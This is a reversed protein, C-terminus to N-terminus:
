EGFVLTASFGRGGEVPSRLQLTAGSQQAIRDVIALGLGTGETLVQGREFPRVLKELAEAPVGAGSDVVRVQRPAVEITVLSNAGSHKLANDILNRLAIGIADLDGAVPAAQGQAAIRLRGSALPESFEDAVLRTLSLLDIPERKLAVGSEVRALQLLRTALRALRDLQRMLAQARTRTDEDIATATLRQAQARAAALPTRLEHATQAAFTREAEVLSRMREILENITAIWPQLECPLNNTSISHLDQAARAALENRTPELARFARRVLLHLVSASMPLLAGLPVILWGLSRWLVQQRHEVREAVQVQRSRDGRTLTMVRWGGVDRVGDLGRLDLPQNPAAHSRMRLRRQEDFMQYVVFEEHPGIEGFLQESSADGIASDPLVLLRQATEAMASDLVEGTEHWVGLLAAVSAALWFGAWAGLLQVRLRKELSWGRPASDEPTSDIDSAV